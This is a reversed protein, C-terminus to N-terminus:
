FCAFVPKLLNKELFMGPLSFCGLVINFLHKKLFVGAEGAFSTLKPKSFMGISAPIIKYTAWRLFDDAVVVVVAADAAPDNGLAGAVFCRGIQRQKEAAASM